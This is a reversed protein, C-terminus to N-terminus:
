VTFHGQLILPGELWNKIVKALFQFFFYLTKGLLALPLDCGVALSGRGCWTLNPMSDPDADHAKAWKRCLRRRLVFDSAKEPPARGPPANKNTRPASSRFNPRCGTIQLALATRQPMSLGAIRM